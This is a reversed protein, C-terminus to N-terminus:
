KKIIKFSKSNNKFRVNLIYIGNASPMNIHSVQEVIEGEVLRSGAVNSLEFDLRSNNLDATTTVTVGGTTITPFVVIEGVDVVASDRELADKPMRSIRNGAADYTFVHKMGQHFLQDVVEGRMMHAFCIIAFALLAGKECWGALQKLLHFGTKLIWIRNNM